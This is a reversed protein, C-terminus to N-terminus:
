RKARRRKQPTPAFLEQLGRADLLSTYVASSADSELVAILLQLVKKEATARDGTEKELKQATDRIETGERWAQGALEYAQELMDARRRISARLHRLANQRGIGPTM